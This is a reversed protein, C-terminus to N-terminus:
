LSSRRSGVGFSQSERGIPHAMVHLCATVRGFVLSWLRFAFTLHILIINVSFCCVTEGNEDEDEHKGEVEVEVEVGAGGRRAWGLGASSCFAAKVQADDRSTTTLDGTAGVAEGLLLALTRRMENELSKLWEKVGRDGIAVPTKFAVEEGDKSFM